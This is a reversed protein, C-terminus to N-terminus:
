SLGVALVVASILAIEQWVLMNYIRKARRETTTTDKPWVKFLRWFYSGILAGRAYNIAIIAGLLLSAVTAAVQGPRKTVEGALAAVVYVVGLAILASLTRTWVDRWFSTEM